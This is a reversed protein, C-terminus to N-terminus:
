LGKTKTRLQKTFLSKFGQGLLHVGSGLSPARFHICVNRNAGRNACRIFFEQLLALVGQHAPVLAADFDMIGAQMAFRNVVLKSLELCPVGLCIGAQSIVDM